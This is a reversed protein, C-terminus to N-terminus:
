ATVAETFKDRATEEQAILARRGEGSSCLWSGGHFFHRAECEACEVAGSAFVECLGDSGCSMCKTTGM